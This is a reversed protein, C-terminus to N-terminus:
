LWGLLGRDKRESAVLADLRDQEAQLAAIQEEFLARTDPDLNAGTVLQQLQQIRIRNEATINALETAAKADGGVLFRAITGRSHIEAELQDSSQGSNNFDRAIASVQPGIGGTRNEMALLNHVATRVANENKTWGARVPITKNERSANNDERDRTTNVRLESSNAGHSGQKTKDEGMTENRVDNPSNRDAAPETSLTQGNGRDENGPQGHTIEREVVGNGAGDNSHNGSEDKAAAAISCAALLLIIIFLTTTKKM